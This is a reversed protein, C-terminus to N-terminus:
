GRSLYSFQNDPNQRSLIVGGLEANSCVEHGVGRIEYRPSTDDAKGSGPAQELATGIRANGQEFLLGGDAAMLGAVVAADEVAAEVILRAGELGSEGDGADALHDIEAALVGDGMLYAAFEDDGSVFFLDGAEHVEILAAALIAEFTELDEAWALHALDFGM